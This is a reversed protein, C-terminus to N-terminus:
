ANAARSKRASARIYRSSVPSIDDRSIRCEIIVFDRVEHAARLAERLERRTQAQIGVGGWAQALEAYPWPPIELLDKRPTVPRFIGWGSNNVLVVIPTLGRQPAWAIESGTMQFGGDGCLLLPRRGTGIQAGLAAPVAFGMSAYYGQAFYLGGRRQRVELGGFLMDGSEAFVDYGSQEALFDNVEVLLDNISLPPASRGQKPLPKRVLNDYYRVRERLRPLKEAALRTVFDKLTVETYTHFSVNVRDDIAWISNRRRVQPKAAGLNMDTLQNGLSLVLDARRVRRQIEPASFPGIHIGMHLPHDMPFVGKGLPTTVVPAGLKEALRVFDKEARERFLEVGGILITRKALRIRAAAEAVAEALKREDSGPRAFTGDWAMIPKPVPIVADVMDRHIELYGPRREALVRGVLERIEEAALEPRRLIRADITVERFIRCQGEVDKVQHHVGGLKQEAEGPGGSVVLLPVQEAYAGAVPNVVNHGGAGYTVCLVGLKRTSRAYGDAAFGVSPEHSFTVIELGRARGFRHFLGLALDGPLGFIHSVGARQLYAVLFDGLPMTARMASRRAKM